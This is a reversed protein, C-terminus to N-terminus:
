QQLNLFRYYVMKEPEKLKDIDIKSKLDIGCQKYYELELRFQVQNFSYNWDYELHKLKAYDCEIETDNNIDVLYWPSISKEDIFYDPVHNAIKFKPIESISNGKAGQIWDSEKKSPKKVLFIPSFLLKVDQNPTTIDDSFINFVELLFAPYGRDIVNLKASVIKGIKPIKISYFTGNM